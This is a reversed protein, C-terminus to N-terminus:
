RSSLERAAREIGEDLTVRPERITRLLTPDAVRTHVGTPKSPDFDLRPSYGHAQTVRTALEAFTTAVGTGINVPETIDEGILYDITAIIDDIHVWDRVQTGDGWITFPDSKAQARALFAGFPYSVDQDTGYGSFPRIIHIGAGAQTARSALHEGTLKAWGYVADPLHPNDLDIDGESLPLGTSRQQLWIPYAASSSPYLVHQCQTRVAWDFLAVDLAMTEAVRLPHNDIGDRGGIVAAFHLVVDFREDTSYIDRCDTGSRIDCTTVDDGNATWHHVAHRGVFGDSGTILVRM